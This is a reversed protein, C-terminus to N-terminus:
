QSAQDQDDYSELRELMQNYLDNLEEYPIRKLFDFIAEVNRGREVYTLLEKRVLDVWVFVGQAHTTIYGTIRSLINGSLRLELRLFDNTLKYIDQENEEQLTIVHHQEEIRHRLEPVPRSALFVKIHCANGESCLQCLLKIIARRDTEESEDVADLILYLQKPAPHTAFSSLVKKLSRYSWESPNGNRFMRFEPQFHFYFSEDQKLISHLVSRLMNEHTRELQTGRETYFYHAIIGLSATPEIKALNNSFYKTLTSERQRAKRRHIAPQLRRIGVMSSIPYADLAM